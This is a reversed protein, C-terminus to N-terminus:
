SGPVCLLCLLFSLGFRAVVCESPSCQVRVLPMGLLMAFSSHAVTVAVSPCGGVDPCWVWRVM